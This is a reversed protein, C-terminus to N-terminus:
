TSIFQIIMSDFKVYAQHLFSLAKKASCTYSVHYEGMYLSNKAIIKNAFISFAPLEGKKVM